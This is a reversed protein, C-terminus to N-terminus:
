KAEWVTNLDAMNAGLKLEVTFPLQHDWGFTKKIPLSEMTVAVHKWADPRDEPIYGVLSDHVMAVIEVGTEEANEEILAAAWFTLDTLTSQVPANIAQRQARSCIENLPSQALPLHRVRGLPSRVGGELVVKARMEEHWDTLGPYLVNLFTNRYAEAQSLTLNQGYSDLAYRQFGGAGMGYLLGFNVAKALSRFQDYKPDGEAKLIKFDEVTMGVLGAATRVHLDGGERYAKLMNGENALCAAIKLEGQAFDAEWMLKGEPAVFCKRLRKAWTTKKPLTQIAPDKASSRGTVTGSEDGHGYDGHFLMYSPHFKGDPRLHALFGDVYTSLTKTASSLAKLRSVMKAAEPVHQFKQFHKISTSPAKTKATVELPKLNLGLPTFFYDSLVVARTLSLNDAYKAKLRNPLSELIERTTQEIAKELDVRLVAYLKRDAYIGRHEMAEFARSAPHVITQYFRALRPDKLLLARIAHGVRLTGDADPGAYPLLDDLPVLEMHAMDYKFDAEYGGLDEDYDKVLNKLSNSRNENLLSGALIVDLTFNTCVIGTKWRVWRLDFKLNAGWIKVMDSTLLWAMQPVVFMEVKPRNYQYVVFAYGVEFSWSSCVIHKDAYEPYLGMTELDFGLPVPEGTAAYKAEVGAIVERLDPVWKYTGLIAKTSGHKFWRLMKVIDWRMKGAAGSDVFLAGPSLTFFVMAGGWGYSLERLSEMSAKKKIGPIPLDSAADAGMVLVCDGPIWPLTTSNLLQTKLLLQAPFDFGLGHLTEGVKEKRGAMSDPLVFWITRSM